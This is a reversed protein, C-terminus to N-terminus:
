LVIMSDSKTCQFFLLVFKCYSVVFKKVLECFLVTNPTCNQFLIFVFNITCQVINVYYLMKSFIGFRKMRRQWRSRRKKGDRERENACDGERDRERWTVCVCMSDRNREYCDVQQSKGITYENSWLPCSLSLDVCYEYLFSRDTTLNNLTKNPM